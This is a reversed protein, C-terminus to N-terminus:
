ADARFARSLGAIILESAKHDAVTVPEDGDKLEIRLDGDRYRMALQGAQRALGEAIQIERAYDSTM